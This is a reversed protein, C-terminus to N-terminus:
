VIILPIMQVLASLLNDIPQSLDDGTDQQVVGNRITVTRPGRVLDCDLQQGSPFCVTIQHEPRSFTLHPHGPNIPNRDHARIDIEWGNKEFTARVEAAAIRDGKLQAYEVARHHLDILLGELKKNRPAPTVPRTVPALTTPTFM